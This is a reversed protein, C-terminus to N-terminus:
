SDKSVISVDWYGNKVTVCAKMGEPPIVVPCRSYDPKGDPGLAYDGHQAKKKTDSM